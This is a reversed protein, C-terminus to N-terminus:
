WIFKTPLCLRVERFVNAEKRNSDAYSKNEFCLCLQSPNVKDIGGEENLAGGEAELCGVGEPTQARALCLWGGM